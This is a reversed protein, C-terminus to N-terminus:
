DAEALRWVWERLLTWEGTENREYVDMRHTEADIIEARHRTIKATGDASYEIMDVNTTDGAILPVTQLFQDGASFTGDWGVQQTVVRGTVPNYFAYMSHYRVERGDAYVGTVEGLLHQGHPGWVWNVGFQSPSNPNSEDHDPNPTRWQASGHLLHSMHTGLAENQSQQAWVAPMQTILFLCLGALTALLRTM